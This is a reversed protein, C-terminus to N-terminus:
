NKNRKEALAAQLEKEARTRPKKQQAAKGDGQVTQRSQSAIAQLREALNDGAEIMIELEESLAQAKGNQAGLQDSAELATKKMTKVAAEARNSATDLQKVLEGLRAQDKKIEAFQRSLRLGFFLAIFLFLLLIIDLVMMLM